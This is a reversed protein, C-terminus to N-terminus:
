AEHVLLVALAQGSSIADRARKESGSMGRGAGGGDRMDIGETLMALAEPTLKM